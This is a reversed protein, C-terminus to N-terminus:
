ERQNAWRVTLAGSNQKVLAKRDYFDVATRTKSRGMGVFHLSLATRFHQRLLCQDIDAVYEETLSRRSRSAPPLLTYERVRQLGPAGNAEFIHVTDNKLSHIASVGM